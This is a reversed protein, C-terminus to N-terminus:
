KIKTQLTKNPRKKLQEKINSKRKFHLSLFDARAQVIDVALMVEKKVLLFVKDKTAPTESVMLSPAM